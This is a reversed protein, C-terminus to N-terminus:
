LYKEFKYKNCFHSIRHLLARAVESDQASLALSRLDQYNHVTIEMKHSFVTILLHRPLDLLTKSRLHFEMDQRVAKHCTNLLSHPAINVILCQKPHVSESILGGTVVLVSNVMVMTHWWRPETMALVSKKWTLPIETLSLKWCDRLVRNDNSFGGYLLLSPGDIGQMTVMSHWTRGTPGPGGSCDPLVNEWTFTVMDLCHLDSLRHGRNRGGVIFVKSGVRSVAQGAKGSTEPWSWTNSSPHYCM